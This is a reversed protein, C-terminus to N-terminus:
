EGDRDRDRRKAFPSGKRSRASDGSVGPRKAPEKRAGKKFDKQQRVSARANAPVGGAGPHMKPANRADPRNVM